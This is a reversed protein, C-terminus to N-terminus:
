RMAVVCAHEHEAREAEDLIAVAYDEMSIQTSTVERDGITDLALQYTGTREGPAIGGPPPSVYTWRLDHIGRYFTLADRQGAIEPAAHAPLGPRDAYQQGATDRLSGFGGVVILRPPPDLTRLAAVVSRAARTYFDADALRGAHGAANVVVDATAAAAAVAAPDFVDANAVSDAPDDVRSWDRVVATVEHGRGIAEAVIRSGIRGTAGIVALRVPAVNARRRVM